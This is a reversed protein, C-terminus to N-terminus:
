RAAASLQVSCVLPAMSVWRKSCPSSTSRVSRDCNAAAYEDSPFPLGVFGYIQRCINVFIGVTTSLEKYSDVAFSTLITTLMQNGFSAIAAGVCPTVNWTQSAKELQFGWTLLGAIITGYGLYSIWLRDAPCTHGRRRLLFKLWWDSMPGSLQEGLVCGITVAIYQLGIQQPGFDFKQGFATPMEVFIAINGYCFAVAHACAAILVRPCRAMFLSEIFEIPKLPRPDIQRPILRTLFGSNAKTSTHGGEEAPVYITEDGFAIYAVLQVFNLITFIWFVCQLCIHEIVFGMIFPGAPTGITTLLTWWGLKQAREDPECLETDVGSGIGIPPSILLATLVRTAMQTGYTTCFVGGVNCVMSGFVSLLIDVSYDWTM